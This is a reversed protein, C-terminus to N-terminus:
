NEKPDTLFRVSLTTITVDIKQLLEKGFDWAEPVSKFPGYYYEEFNKDRRILIVM